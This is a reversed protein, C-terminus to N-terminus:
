LTDGIPYDRTLRERYGIFRSYGTLVIGALPPTQLWERRLTDVKFKYRLLIKVGHKLCKVYGDGLLDAYCPTPTVYVHVGYICTYIFIYVTSHVIYHTTYRPASLATTLTTSSIHASICTYLVGPWTVIPPRPSPPPQPCVHWFHTTPSPTRM